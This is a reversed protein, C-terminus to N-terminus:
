IQLKFTVVIDPADDKYTNQKKNTQNKSTAWMHSLDIFYHV